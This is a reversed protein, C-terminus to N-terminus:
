KYRLYCPITYNSVVLHAIRKGGYSYFNFITINNYLNM